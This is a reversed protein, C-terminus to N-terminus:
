IRLGQGDVAGSAPLGECNFVPRLEASREFGVVLIKTRMAALRDLDTQWSLQAIPPRSVSGIRAIRFDVIKRYLTAVATFRDRQCHSSFGIVRFLGPFTRVAVLVISPLVRTAQKEDRLTRREPLSTM